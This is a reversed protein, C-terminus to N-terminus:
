VRRLYDSWSKKVDPIITKGSINLYDKSNGIKKTKGAVAVLLTKVQGTSIRQLSFSEVDAPLAGLKASETVTGSRNGTDFRKRELLAKINSYKPVGNKFLEPNDLIKNVFEIVSPITALRSIRHPNFQMHSIRMNKLQEVAEELVDLLGVTILDGKGFLAQALPPNAQNRSLSYWSSPAKKKGYKAAYFEDAYHGYLSIDEDDEIKFNKGKGSFAKQRTFLINRPNYSSSAKEYRVKIRRVYSEIEKLDRATYIDKQTMSDNILKLLRFAGKNKGKNRSNPRVWNETVHEELQAYLNEPKPNGKKGVSMISEKSHGKCDTVWDSYKQKFDYQGDIQYVVGSSTRMTAKKTNKPM